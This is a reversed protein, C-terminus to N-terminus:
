WGSRIVAAVAENFTATVNNPYKPNPNTNCLYNSNRMLPMVLGWEIWCSLGPTTVSTADNLGITHGMEHRAIHWYANSPATDNLVIVFIVYNPALNHCDLDEGPFSDSGFAIQYAKAYSGSPLTPTTCQTWTLDVGENAYIVCATTVGCGTTGNTFKNHATWVNWVYVADGTDLPTGQNQVKAGTDPVTHMNPIAAPVTYDLAHVATPEGLALNLTLVAIACVALRLPPLGRM